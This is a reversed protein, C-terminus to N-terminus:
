AEALWGRLKDTAAALLGAVRRRTMHMATAVEDLPRPGKRTPPGPPEGIRWRLEVARREDASLDGLLGRLADALDAERGDQEAQELEDVMLADLWDTASLHGGPPQLRCALAHRGHADAVNRLRRWIGTAAFSSWPVGSELKYSRGCRVVIIAAEQFLDDLDPGGPRTFMKALKRILGRNAEILDGEASRDGGRVRELLPLMRANTARSSASRERRNARGPKGDVLSATPM